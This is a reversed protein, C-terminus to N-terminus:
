RSCFFNVCRGRIHVASMRQTANTPNYGCLIRVRIEKDHRPCIRRAKRFPGIANETTTQSMNAATCGISRVNASPSLEKFLSGAFLFTFKPFVQPKLGRFDEEDFGNTLVQSKGEIDPEFSRVIGPWAALIRDADRLM